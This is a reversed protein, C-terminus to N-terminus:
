LNGESERVLIAGKEKLLREAKDKNFGAQSTDFALVFHDDTIRAEPLPKTAGPFLRCRLFLALATGLGGVLVTLEFSIPIFAPLSIFPKGGVDLPWSYASSWIQFGIAISLGTLGAFFTAWPLRSRREGMADDLGHVAYPTYADHILFGNERAARAASLLPNEHEFIALLYKKPM